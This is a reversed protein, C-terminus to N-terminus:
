VAVLGEGGGGGGGRGLSPHFKPSNLEMSNLELWVSRILM